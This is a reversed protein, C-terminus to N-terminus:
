EDDEDMDEDELDDESEEPDVWSYFEAYVDWVTRLANKVDQPKLAPHQGGFGSLEVAVKLLDINQRRQELFVQAQAELELAEEILKDSEENHGCEPGHEHESMLHVGFVPIDIPRM